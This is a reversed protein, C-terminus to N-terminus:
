LFPSVISVVAVPSVPLEDGITTAPSSEAMPYVNVTEAVLAAPVEAGEAADDETVIVVTGAAGLV